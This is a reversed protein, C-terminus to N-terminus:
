VGKTGAGDLADDFDTEWAYWPFPSGTPNDLRAEEDLAQVAAKMEELAREFDHKNARARAALLRRAIQVEVLEEGTETNLYTARVIGVQGSANIRVIESM